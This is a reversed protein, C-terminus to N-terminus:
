RGSPAGRPLPVFETPAPPVQKITCPQGVAKCRHLGTSTRACDIRRNYAIAWRTFEEGLQKAGAVWSELARKKAALEDKDEAVEGALMAECLATAARAEVPAVLFASLLAARATRWGVSSCPM